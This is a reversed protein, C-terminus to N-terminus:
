VHSFIKININYKKDFVATNFIPKAQLLFKQCKMKQTLIILRELISQSTM